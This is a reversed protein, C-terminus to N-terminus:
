TTPKGGALLARAQSEYAALGAASARDALTGLESPLAPVGLSQCARAYIFFNGEEVARAKLDALLAGDGAKKALEVAESLYDAALLERGARALAEKSTKPSESLGRRTKWDLAGPPM